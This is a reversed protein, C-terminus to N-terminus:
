YSQRTPFPVRTFRKENLDLLPSTSDANLTLPIWSTGVQDQTNHMVFSVRVNYKGPALQVNGHRAAPVALEVAQVGPAESVVAIYADNTPHGLVELDFRGERIKGAAESMAGVGPAVPPRKSVFADAILPPVKKGHMYWSAVLGLLIALSIVGM